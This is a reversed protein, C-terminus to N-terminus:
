TLDPGPWWSNSSNSGSLKTVMKTLVELGEFVVRLLLDVSSFRGLDLLGLSVAARVIRLLESDVSDSTMEDM